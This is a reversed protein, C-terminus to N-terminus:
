QMRYSPSFFILPYNFYILRPPATYLTHRPQCRGPGGKTWLGNFSTQGEAVNIYM